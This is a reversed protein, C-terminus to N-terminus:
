QSPPPPFSDDEPLNDLREEQQQFEKERRNYRESRVYPEAPKDANEDDRNKIENRRIDPHPLGDVTKGTGTLGRGDKRDGDTKDKSRGKKFRHAKRGHHILKAALAKREDQELETAVNAFLDLRKMYMEHKRNQLARAASLFRDKDFVETGMLGSVEEELKRLDRMEKFLHIDQKKFAARIKERKEKSLGSGRQGMYADMRKKHKYTFAGMASLAFINVMLSVVLFIKTKSWRKM